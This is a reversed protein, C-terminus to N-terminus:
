KNLPDFGPEFPNTQVLQKGTLQSSNSLHATRLGGTEDHSVDNLEFLRLGRLLSFALGQAPAAKVFPYDRLVLTEIRLLPSQHCVITALATAYLFGGCM